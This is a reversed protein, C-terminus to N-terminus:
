VYIDIVPDAEHASTSVVSPTLPPLQGGGTGESGTIEVVHAGKGPWDMRRLRAGALLRGRWVSNQAQRFLSEEKLVEEGGLAKALMYLSASRFPGGKLPIAISQYVGGNLLDQPTAGEKCAFFDAFECSHRETHDISPMEHALLLEVGQVMAQRVEDAFAASEAGRTWTLSNLYVLFFKCGGLERMESTMELQVHKPTQLEVMLAAAGANHPSCYVHHTAGGSVYPVSAKLHGLEGPAYIAGGVDAQWRSGVRRRSLGSPSGVRRRSLGSPSWTSPSAQDGSHGMLREAILRLTVTQFAGLRSWEITKGAFLAAQMREATPKAALPVDEFECDLGWAGFSDAAAALRGSIDGIPIGGKKKDIELVLVVAKEEITAVALERMCNKSVFYGDSGFVLVTQSIRVDDEGRGSSLDDVDLFIRITPLMELLRTKVVRMQDQGSGWVHSLFLNYVLAGDLRPPHVVAAPDDVFRLRKALQAQTKLAEARVQLFSLILILGLTLLGAGTLILTLAFSPVQYDKLQEDSMREQLEDLSIVSDFHYAVCCLFVVAIGLSSALAIIDDAPTRYPRAVAQLTLYLLSFLTGLLVQLVTGPEVVVMLGVLVFRRTM